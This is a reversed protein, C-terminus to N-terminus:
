NILTYFFTLKTTHIYVGGQSILVHYICINFLFITLLSKTANHVKNSYLFSFPNFHFLSPLDRPLTNVYNPPLSLSIYYKTPSNFLVRPSLSLPPFSPLFYSTCTLFAMPSYFFLLPFHHGAERVRPNSKEPFNKRKNSNNGNGKSLGFGGAGRGHGQSM